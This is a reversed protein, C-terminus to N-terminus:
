RISATPFLSIWSRQGPPTQCTVLDCEPDLHEINITPPIMQNRLGHRHHRSGIWGRRRASTWDHVQHFQRATEQQNRTRRLRAQHGQNRSIDGIPTSTGHANVYDVDEPKIRADAIANMMVRFGGEGDEAPQTSTSADASM